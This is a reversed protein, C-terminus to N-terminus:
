VKIILYLPRLFILFSICSFNIHAAIPLEHLIDHWLNAFYNAISVISNGGIMMNEEEKIISTTVFGLINNISVYLTQLIVEIDNADVLARARRSSVHEFESNPHCKLVHHLLQVEPLTHLHFGQGVHDVLYPILKLIDFQLIEVVPPLRDEIQNGLILTAISLYLRLASNKGLATPPPPIDPRLHCM